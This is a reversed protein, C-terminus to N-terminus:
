ASPPTGVPQKPGNLRMLINAMALAFLIKASNEASLVTNWPLQDAMGLFGMLGQFAVALGTIANSIVTGWTPFYKHIVLYLAVFMVIAVIVFVVAHLM